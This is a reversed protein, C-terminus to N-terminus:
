RGTSGFGNDGRESSALSDNMVVVEPFYAREIILQAIKDGMKIELNNTTSLNFLVVKVLGRYDSDIVGAGVDSHKKWAMSSRPAIRGYYGNPICMKIGTNILAKGSPDIIFDEVSFLDYGAAEDSGRVPPKANEDDLIIQLQM